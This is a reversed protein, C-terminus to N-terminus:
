AWGVGLKRESEESFSLSKSAKSICGLLLLSFNEAEESTCVRPIVADTSADGPKEDPPLVSNLGDVSNLPTTPLRTALLATEEHPAIGTERSGIWVSENAMDHDESEDAVVDSLVESFIAARFENTEPELIAPKPPEELARLRAALAVLGSHVEPLPEHVGQGSPEAVQPTDMALNASRNKPEDVGGREVEAILHDPAVVPSIVDKVGNVQSLTSSQETFTELALVIRYNDEIRFSHVVLCDAGYQKRVKEMCSGHDAAQVVVLRM